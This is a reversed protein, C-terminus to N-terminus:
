FYHWNLSLEWRFIKYYNLLVWRRIYAEMWCFYLIKTLLKLYIYILSFLYALVYTNTNKDLKIKNL